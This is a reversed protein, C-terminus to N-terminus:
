LTFSNCVDDDLTMAPVGHKSRYDNHAKLVENRFKMDAGHGFDFTLILLLLIFIFSSYQFFKHSNITM